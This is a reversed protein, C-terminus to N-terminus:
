RLLIEPLIKRKSLQVMKVQNRGLIVCAKIEPDARVVKKFSQLMIPCLLSIFIVQTFKRLM